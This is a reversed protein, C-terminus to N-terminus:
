CLGFTRKITEFPASWGGQKGSSRQEKQQRAGIRRRVIPAEKTQSVPPAGPKMNKFAADGRLMKNHLADAAPDSPAGMLGREAYGVSPFSSHFTQYGARQMPYDVSQNQLQAAQPNPLASSHLEAAANTATTTTCRELSSSQNIASTRRSGLPSVAARMAANNTMPVAKLPAPWQSADAAYGTDHVSYRQNPYCLAKPVVGNPMTIGANVGPGAGPNQFYQPISCYQQQQLLMQQQVYHTYAAYAAPNGMAAAANAASSMSTPTATVNSLHGMPAMVGFRHADANVSMTAQLPLSHETPQTYGASAAPVPSSSYVRSADSHLTVPKDYGYPISSVPQSYYSYTEKWTEAQDKSCTLLKENTVDTSAAATETLVVPTTYSSTEYPAALHMHAANNYHAETPRLQPTKPASVAYRVASQQTAPEEVYHPYVNTEYAAEYTQMAGNQLFKPHENHSFVLQQQDSQLAYHSASEVVSTEPVVRVNDGIHKYTWGANEESATRTGTEPADAAPWVSYTKEPEDAPTLAPDDNYAAAAPPRDGLSGEDLPTSSRLEYQPSEHSRPEANKEQVADYCESGQLANRQDADREEDATYGLAGGVPQIYWDQIIGERDSLTSQRSHQADDFLPNQKLTDQGEARRPEMEGRAGVSATTEQGDSVSSASVTKCFMERRQEEDNAGRVDEQSLFM